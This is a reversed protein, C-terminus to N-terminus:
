LGAAKLLRRSVGRGEDFLRLFYVGDPLQEWQSELTSLIQDQKGKLSMIKRGKADQLVLYRPSFGAAPTVSLQGASPNPFIQVLETQGQIDKTGVPTTVYVEFLRNSASSPTINPIAARIGGYIYGLLTRGSLEDYKVVGNGYAPVASAPIFKANAGLLEDFKESLVFEESSGGPYRVFATIEDIFPMLPDEILTHGDESLYHLSIGGFFLYYQIQNTEDFLPLVPCTYQSMKQDYAGDIEINNETIYIPNLYAADEDPKFVGGFAALGLEENPFVANILSLDRRHYESHSMASYDEIALLLGDDAIKFKRIESTYEQTYTPNGLQNYLGNFDQGGVMYLYEGLEHMEGGCVKLRPDRMSRFANIPSNGAIVAPVLISLDIALLEDFTVFDGSVNDKGYGGIIYLYQGQQVYQPNTGRLFDRWEDPFGSVSYSWYLGTEKDMVWLEDNAESEPFGTVAFFGHLGNRRGGVFVWYDDWEGFSFSHLGPWDDYTIEEIEVSFPIGSDQCFLPSFCLFALLMMLTRIM